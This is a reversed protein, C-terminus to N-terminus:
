ADNDTHKVRKNRRKHSDIVNEKMMFFEYVSLTKIEKFSLNGNGEASALNLCLKDFDMHIDLLIKRIPKAEDNLVKHLETEYEDQKEMLRAREIYSLEGSL